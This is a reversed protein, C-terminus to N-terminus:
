RAGGHNGVVAVVGVGHAGQHCATFARGALAARHHDAAGTVAAVLVDALLGHDQAGAKSSTIRYWSAAWRPRASPSTTARSRSPRAPAARVLM